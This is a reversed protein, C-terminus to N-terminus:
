CFDWFFMLPLRPPLCWIFADVNGHLNTMDDNFVATFWFASGQNDYICLFINAFRGRPNVRVTCILKSYLQGFLLPVCIAGSKPMTAAGVTLCLRPLFHHEHLGSNLLQSMQPLPAILLWPLNQQDLPQEAPSYYWASTALQLHLNNWFYHKNLHWM